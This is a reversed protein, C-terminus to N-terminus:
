EQEDRAEKAFAVLSLVAVGDERDPEPNRQGALLESIRSLTSRSRQLAITGEALIASIPKEASRSPANTM